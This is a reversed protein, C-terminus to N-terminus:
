MIAYEKKGLLLVAIITAVGAVPQVPTQSRALLPREEDAGHARIESEAPETSIDTAM